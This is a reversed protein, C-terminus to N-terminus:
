NMLTIYIATFRSEDGTFRVIFYVYLCSILIFISSWSGAYSKHSYRENNPMCFNGLILSLFFKPSFIYSRFLQTSSVFIHEYILVKGVYLQLNSVSEELDCRVSFCMLRQHNVASFGIIAVNRRLAIKSISPTVLFRGGNEWM